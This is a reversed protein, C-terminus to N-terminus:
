VSFPDKPISWELALEEGIQKVVIAELPASGGDLREGTTVDFEAEHWRCVCKGDVLEIPGGMHTCRNLFARLQGKYRFVYASIGPMLPVTRGEGERWSDARGLSITRM